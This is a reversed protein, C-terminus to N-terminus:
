NVYLLITFCYTDVTHKLIPILPRKLVAGPLRAAPDADIHYTWAQWFVEKTNAKFEKILYNCEDLIHRLFEVQSPYM